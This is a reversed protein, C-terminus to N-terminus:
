RQCVLNTVRIGNPTTNDCGVINGIGKQLWVGYGTANSVTARNRVFVNDRGWDAAKSYTATFGNEPASAGTNGEVLFGNGKIVIWGGSLDGTMAAGNVTNGRVTGESTGAKVDIAEATTGSIVNDQVLVRDSRDPQCDSYTCWADPDSGIYIGEGYQPFRLGAREITNNVVANDTSNGRVHIAEEGIDSLSLDSLTNFSGGNVMVGKQVNRLSFGTVIVHSAKSLTIGAGGSMPDGYDIVATRPGCIWVPNATTAVVSTTFPGRYVGPALTIVDGAVATKLAYQLAGATAVPRTAAPCGAFREDVPAPAPPSTILAIPSSPSENGSTDLATLRYSYSVGSSLGVDLFSLQTPPLRDLLVEINDNSATRFLRYAAVDTASVPQWEVNIGTRTNKLVPSAPAPPASSDTVVFADLSIGRGTSAPNLTGTREIRITHTGDRLGSRTYVTQQHATTASYLDVKTAAVGDIYVQAIGSFNNTRTIWKIGTGSFTFRADGVTTLTAYSGGSDRTSSATTWSTGTYVIAGSTNEHTGTSVATTASATTSPASENGSSDVATVRYRYMLGPTLGEDLRSTESLPGDDIPTFTTDSGSSRYIRYGSADEDLSESWELQINAASPMAWISRPPEPATTDPVVFSTLSTSAPDVAADNREGTWVVKIVHSGAGLGKKEFLKVNRVTTPAYQDVTAAWDGDIYVKAIGGAASRSGMWRVGSEVFTLGAYGAGATQQGVTTGSGDVDPTWDGELRVGADDARYTGAGVATRVPEGVHDSENGSSDVATVRYKYVANRALGPDVFTTADLPFDTLLEYTTSGNPARYVQYGSLDSEGSADWGLRIGAGEPRATLNTPTRPARTDPVIFHDLNITRGTSADNKNGSREIRLTHVGYELVPSSYVVTKYTTAASYLDVTTVLTGDLYVNAVGFYPGTRAVWKISTETFAVQAFGATALSASSGGSDSSSTAAAWSGSYIIQDDTNEVTGAGASSDDSTVRVDDSRTSVNGSTDVAAIQYRYGTNPTLAPDTYSTATIPVENVVDYVGSDGVARYLVYGALDDGPNANWTLTAGARTATAALGTPTAPARTDAVVFSDVNVTRGSSADNKNGSREIRLTHTAYDLTPSTYSVVKYGATAAYLDVTAVLTGDLYVHAIGFYNGTRALWRISTEKFAIQAFGTGALTAVSGGSDSASTATAWTGSYTVDSSTNEYTGGPVATAEGTVTVEATRGSVNGATDVAAIRYRYETGPTLAPDIFGTDTVPSDSVTEFTTSAGVARYVLYGALDAEPNAAWSLQAGANKAVAALGTPAFPARTDAVVFSDVDISRGTSADNKNGSREIRLTHTGYALTPSTYALVKYATGPSYLDVTTVLSGDLYVNAIGFYNGTRATWRISTEKFAIQAYGAGALTAISGGSDSASTATAWSGSYTIDPSSNDYTGASVASSNATVTADATRPSTNGSSDVAAIRYRYDAGPTLAPDTYGTDVVPSETLTDYVNSTGTARYVLYGTVDDEANAAWSLQAGANKAVASLGTPSAPARTDAVVFSDLNVSRGSSADNKTGSREIRLTHTGYALTPSTYVVAKYVNTASYLDVVAVLSGDLYVNAIGFYNATRAVWQVSTETFSLSASGAAALTSISGGSDATSTATAWTGTYAVAASTNEQRGAGVTTAAHAPTTPFSAVIILGALVTAILRHVRVLRREPVSM